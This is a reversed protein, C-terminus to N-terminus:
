RMLFYVSATAAVSALIFLSMAGTRNEDHITYIGYNITRMICIAMVPLLILKEM